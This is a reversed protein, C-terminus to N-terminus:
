RMRPDVWVDTIQSRSASGRGVFQLRIKQWGSLKIPHLDVTGSAKWLRNGDGKLDGQDKPAEWTATGQYAVMFDVGDGGTVSRVWARAKPYDTTICMVPSIAVAKSPLDIAWGSTGDARATPVFSAGNSLQWGAATSAAPDAFSGGPALFYSNTDKVSAFPQSFEQVSCDSTDYSASVPAGGALAPSATAGLACATLTSLLAARTARRPLMLNMPVGDM